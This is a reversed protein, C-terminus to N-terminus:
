QIKNITDLLDKDFKEITNIVEKENCMPKGTKSAFLAKVGLRHVHVEKVRLIFEVLKEIIEDKYRYNKVLYFTFYTSMAACVSILAIYNHESFDKQTLFIHHILWFLSIFIGGLSVAYTKYTTGEKIDHLLSKCSFFFGLLVIGFICIWYHFSSRGLFSFAHAEKKKKDNISKLLTKYKLYISEGEVDNNSRFHRLIEIDREKVTSKYEKVYETVLPNKSDFFIHWLSLSLIIFVTIGKLFAVFSIKQSTVM